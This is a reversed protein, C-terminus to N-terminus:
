AQRKAGLSRNLLWSLALWQRVSMDIARERGGCGNRREERFGAGSEGTEVGSCLLPSALESHADIAWTV